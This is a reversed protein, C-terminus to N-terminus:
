WVTGQKGFVTLVQLGNREIGHRRCTYLQGTRIWRTEESVTGHSRLSECHLKSHGEARSDGLMTITYDSHTERQVLLAPAADTNSGIQDGCPLLEAFTPQIFSLISMVKEESSKESLATQYAHQNQM